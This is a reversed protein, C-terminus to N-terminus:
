PESGQVILVYSTTSPQGVLEALTVACAGNGVEASVALGSPGSASQSGGPCTVELSLTAGGGWTARATEIGSGTGPYTASINDPYELYGPDTQSSPATSSPATSSPVTSSPVAAASTSSSAYGSAAPLVISSPVPVGGASTTATSPAVVEPGVVGAIPRSAGTSAVPGPTNPAVAPRSTGHSTTQARVSKLSSAGPRPRVLAGHTHAVGRSASISAVLAM